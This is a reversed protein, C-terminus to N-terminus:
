ADDRGHDVLQCSVFYGVGLAIAPQSYTLIFLNGVYLEETLKAKTLLGQGSSYIKRGMASSLLAVAMLCARVTGDDILAIADGLLDILDRLRKIKQTSLLCVVAGLFDAVPETFDSISTTQCIEFLAARAADVNPAKVCAAVRAAVLKMQEREVDPCGALTLQSAGVALMWQPVESANHLDIVKRAWTLHPPFVM